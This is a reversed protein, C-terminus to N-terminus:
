KINAIKQAEPFLKIAAQLQRDVTSYIEIYKGRDWLARAINAKIEVQMFDKDIKFQEEDWKVDKSEALKKVEELMADTVKYDKYFKYFNSKFEAPINKGNNLNNAVYEYFVRKIRMNVSLNTITDSKVYYDPTIGGGGLVTRGKKTKFIPISDMEIKDDGKNDKKIITAKHPKHTL